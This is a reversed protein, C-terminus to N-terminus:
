CGGGNVIEDYKSMFIEDEEFWQKVKNLIERAKECQRAQVLYGAYELVGIRMMEFDVERWDDVSEVADLLKQAEKITIKGSGKDKIQYQCAGLLFQSGIDNPDLRKMKMVTGRLRSYDQQDVMNQIVEVLYSKLETFYPKHDAYMSGDKDKKIAKGADSIADNFAKPYDEDYKQDKSMEFNAKSSYLYPLADNKTKDNDQYKEAKSVLKEYDGDAYYILLDDYLPPQANSNFAFGVLFLSLFFINKM